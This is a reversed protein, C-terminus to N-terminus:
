IYNISNYFVFNTAKKKCNKLLKEILGITSQQSFWNILKDDMMKQKIYEIAKIEVMDETYVEDKVELEYQKEKVFSISPNDTLSALKSSFISIIKSEISLM